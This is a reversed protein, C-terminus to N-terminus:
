INIKYYYIISCYIKIINVELHEITKDMYINGDKALREFIVTDAGKCYIKIEGNPCRVITSM